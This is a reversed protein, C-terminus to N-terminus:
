HKIKILQLHPDQAMSRQLESSIEEDGGPHCTNNNEVWEFTAIQCFINLQDGKTKIHDRTAIVCQWM